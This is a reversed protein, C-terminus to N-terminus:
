GIASPHLFILSEYDTTGNILSTGGIGKGASYRLTQNDAFQQPVSQYAWDVPGGSLDTWILPNRVTANNRRDPGPDVVAVTISPDASLKNALALGATGAGVIVYDPSGHSSALSLQPFTLSLALATTWATPIM